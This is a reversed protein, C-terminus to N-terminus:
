GTDALLDRAFEGAATILQHQNGTLGVTQGFKGRRQVRHRVHQGDVKRFGRLPRSYRVPDRGKAEGRVDQYFLAPSAVM